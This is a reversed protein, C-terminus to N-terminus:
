DSNRPRQRDLVGTATNAHVGDGRTRDLRRHIRGFHVLKESTQLWHASHALHVFDNFLHKIEFFRGENGSFDQM